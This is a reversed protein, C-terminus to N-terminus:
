YRSVTKAYICKLITAQIKALTVPRYVVNKATNAYLFSLVFVVCKDIYSFSFNLLNIELLHHKPLCNKIVREFLKLSQFSKQLSAFPVEM